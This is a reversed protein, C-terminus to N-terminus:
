NITIANSVKFTTYKGVKSSFLRLEYVGPAIDKPLPIDVAGAAASHTYASALYKTNDEGAAFLGIWDSSTTEVTRLVWRASITGSALDATVHDNDQVVFEVTAQENYKSGAAFLRAEYVGPTRPLAALVKATPNGYISSMYIKNRRQSKEFIGVWDWNSPISPPDLQYELMLHEEQMQASFSLVAPGVRLVPANTKEQVRSTVPKSSFVRVEYHGPTLGKFNFEGTPKTVYVFGAYTNISRRPFLGLWATSPPTFLLNWTGRIETGDVEATIEVLEKKDVMVTSNEFQEQALRERTQTEEELLRIREAEERKREEDLKRRAEEEEERKRAAEEMTRLREEASKKEEEVRKRQEELKLRELELIKKMDAEQRAREDEEARKADARRRDEESRRQEEERREEELKRMKDEWSKKVSDQEERFRRENEFIKKREEEERQLEEKKRAEFLKREDELKKLALREEVLLREQAIRKEEELKRKETELAQREYEVKKQAEVSAKREAEEKIKKAAEEKSRREAEGTAKRVAEEKAKLEAAETAKRNAEELAKRTAAEEGTRKAQEETVKRQQFELLLKEQEKIAKAHEERVREEEAKRRQDEEQKARQANSQTTREQEQLTHQLQRYEEFARLEQETRVVEAERRAGTAVENSTLNLLTDVTGDVDGKHSDYVTTIVSQTLDAFMGHLRNINEKAKNDMPQQAQPQTPQQPQTQAQAQPKPKNPNMTLLKEVAPDFQENAETLTKAIVSQTIDEGFITNLVSLKDEATQNEM